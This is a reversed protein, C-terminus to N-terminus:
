YQVFIHRAVAQSLTFLPQRGLKIELSADFAFRRRVELRSGIAIKKDDLLELIDPHHNSVSSVTAAQHLPLETLCVQSKRQIRGEEDPIPDGHPDFRPFGLYADLREVLLPHRVHELEEAVAHVEDWSFGLKEALFYEWLRHRRIIGLAIRNGEATLRVGQYPQYHLLKKAKLKKLMDTVSAPKTLLRSALANTTVNGQAGQLHFIAKLHNEESPSYHPM